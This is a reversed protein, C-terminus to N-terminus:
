APIYQRTPQQLEPLPSQQVPPLESDASPLPVQPAIEAQPTDLAPTEPLQNNEVAVSQNADSELVSPPATADPYPEEAEKKTDYKIFYVEPKQVKAEPTQPPVIEDPQEPKKVLVYVM